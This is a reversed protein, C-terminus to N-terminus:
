PAAPSGHPRPVAARGAHWPAARGRPHPNVRSKDIQFSGGQDLEVQYFVIGSAMRVGTVAGPLAYDLVTSAASVAGLQHTVLLRTGRDLLTVRQPSSWPM